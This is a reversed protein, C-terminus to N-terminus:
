EKNEQEQFIFFGVKLVWVFYLAACFNTIGM